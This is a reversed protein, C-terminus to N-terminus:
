GEFYVANTPAPVALVCLLVEGRSAEVVLEDVGRTVRLHLGVWRQHALLRMDAFHRSSLRCLPAGISDRFVAFLYYFVGKDNFNM